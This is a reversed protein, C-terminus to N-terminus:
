GGPNYASIVLNTARQGGAQNSNDEDGFAIGVTGQNNAGAANAPLTVTTGSAGFTLLRGDLAVQLNSGQATMQLTHVVAANFGAQAGTTAILGFPNLGKVRVEGTSVLEVWYGASTGGLIGDGASAARSGFYPGADTVNSGTMPVLLDVRINLNQPFTVGHIGLNGCAGSANTVQVGGLNLGNQQLAGSVLNAGIPSSVGFIPLYYYTGSGGLAQDAQGLSCAAANARQFDDSFLVNGGTGTLPVTMTPHVQDNSGITLNYNSGSYTAAAGPNFQVTVTIGGAPVTLPSGATVVPSVVSYPASATLSSVTLSGSGGNSITVTQTPLPLQGVTVTGFNLGTQNVSIAPTGGGGGGSTGTVTLLLVYNSSTCGPQAQGEFVKCPVQGAPNLNTLSLDAGGTGERPFVAQDQNSNAQFYAVDTAGNSWGVTLRVDYNYLDYPWAYLIYSNPPLPLNMLQGPSNLLPNAYSGSNTVGLFDVKTNDTDWTFSNTFSPPTANANYNGVEM